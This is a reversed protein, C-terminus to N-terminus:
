TSVYIYMRPTGNEKQHVPTKRFQLQRGTVTSNTLPPISLPCLANGLYNWFCVYGVPYNKAGGNTFFAPVDVIDPTVDFRPQYNKLIWIICIYLSRKELNDAKERWKKLFEENWSDLLAPILM